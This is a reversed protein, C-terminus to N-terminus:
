MKLMNSPRLVANDREAVGLRDAGGRVPSLASSKSIRRYCIASFVENRSFSAVGEEVMEFAFVTGRKTHGALFGSRRHALSLRGHVSRHHHPPPPPTYTFIAAPAQSRARTKTSLEFSVTSVYFSSM